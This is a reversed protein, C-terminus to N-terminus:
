SGEFNTKKTSHCEVEYQKKGNEHIDDCFRYLNNMTNEPSKQKELTGRPCKLLAV